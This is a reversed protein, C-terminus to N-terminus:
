KCVVENCPRFNRQLRETLYKLMEEECKVINM